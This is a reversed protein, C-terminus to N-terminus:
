TGTAKAPVPELSTVASTFPHLAAIVGAVLAAAAAFAIAYRLDATGALGALLGGLAGLGDMVAYIFGLSTSERKGTMDVAAALLVPRVGVLLSGAIVAGLVLLLPSGTFAVIGVAGAVVVMSGTVLRKRGVEDSYRGMLPASVGGALLMVAFVIGAESTSYGHYDQLFLPLMALLAIFSMNYTVGILFMALGSPRRWVNVLDVLDRRSIATEDSTEVFRSLYLFSIGMILAPIISIQLVTQWDFVNLLFGVSLPAIVEAMIGGTLHVGLALARQKPMRQVMTGTAMPHWAASGWAAVPLMVVLLWYSPMLSAALYGFVVWFLAMVLLPGRKSIRDGVIGFPLYAFGGGLNHATILFGIEAPSLDWAVGIAPALLWLAGGPTDVSFHGLPFAILYFLHRARETM